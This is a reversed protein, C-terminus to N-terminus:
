PGLEKVRAWVRDHITIGLKGALIGAFSALPEQCTVRVPREKLQV